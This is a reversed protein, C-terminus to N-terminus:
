TYLKGIPRPVPKSPVPAGPAIRPPQCSVEITVVVTEPSGLDAFADKHVYTTGFVPESDPDTEYAVFRTTEKVKHLTTTISM